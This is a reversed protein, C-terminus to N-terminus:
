FPLNLQDRLRRLDRLLRRRHFTALRRLHLCEHALVRASIVDDDDQDITGDAWPPGAGPRLADATLVLTVQGAARHDGRRGRRGTADAGVPSAFASAFFTRSSRGPTGETRRGWAGSRQRQAGRWPAGCGRAGRAELERGVARGATADAARGRGRAARRRTRRCRRGRWRRTSSVWDRGGEIGAYAFTQAFRRRLHAHEGVTSASNVFPM